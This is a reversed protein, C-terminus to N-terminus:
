KYPSLGLRQLADEARKGIVTDKAIDSCRRYNTVANAINGKREYVLGRNYYAPGYTPKLAIVQNYDAIALDYKDKIFNNVGRQYYAEVYDPRLKIAQDLSEIARDYDENNFYALGLNYYAETYNPKLKILQEYNKIASSFDKKFLSATGWLFLINSQIESTQPSVPQEMAKSSRLIAGDYDKLEYRAYAALMLALHNLDGSLLEKASVGAQEAVTANFSLANNSLSLTNPPRVVDIHVTGNLNEDYFGWIVLNANHEDGLKRATETGEQEPIVANLTKVEVEPFEATARRMRDIIKSTVAFKQDFGDFNAVLVTFKDTYSRGLYEAIAFGSAIFVPLLIMGVLALGRWRQFRYEAYTALRSQKKTTFVWYLFVWVVSTSALTAWTVNGRLEKISLRLGFVFLAVGIFPAARKIINEILGVLGVFAPEFKRELQAEVVKPQSLRRTFSARSSSPSNANSVEANSNNSEELNARAGTSEQEISKSVSIESTKAREGETKARSQGNVGRLM